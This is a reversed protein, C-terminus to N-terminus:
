PQTKRLDDAARVLAAVREHDVPQSWLGGRKLHSGVIYADARPWLAPLNELTVGSGVFIPLDVAERNDPHAFRKAQIYAPIAALGVGAQAFFAINKRGPEWQWYVAQWESLSLGFLYTGVICAFYLAGKFLRGQYCHGAGPILYALGAALYRNKLEIRPDSM